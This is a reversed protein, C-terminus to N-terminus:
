EQYKGEQFEATMSHSSVVLPTWTYSNLNQAELQCVADGALKSHAMQFIELKSLGKIVGTEATLSGLNSSDWLASCCCFLSLYCKVKLCQTKPHTKLCSYIVPFYEM